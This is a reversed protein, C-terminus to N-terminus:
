PRDMGHPDTVHKGGTYRLCEDLEHGFVSHLIMSRIMRAYADVDADGRKMVRNRFRVQQQGSGDIAEVLTDVALLDFDTDKDSTVVARLISFRFPHM